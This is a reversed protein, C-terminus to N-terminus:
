QDDWDFIHYASVQANKRFASPKPGQYRSANAIAAGRPNHRRESLAKVAELPLPADQRVRPVLDGARLPTAAEYPGPFPKGFLSRGGKAFIARDLRRVYEKMPDIM